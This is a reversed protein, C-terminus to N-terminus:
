WFSKCDRSNRFNSELITAKIFTAFISRNFRLHEFLSVRSFHLSFTEERNKIPQQMQLEYLSVRAYQCHLIETIKVINRSAVM